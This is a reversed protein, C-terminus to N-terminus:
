RRTEGTRVVDPAILNLVRTVEAATAAWTGLSHRRQAAADRWRARLGPDGLWGRLAAALAAPDGAPLLAGPVAGDSGTGLAEGHGGVDTVIAPLGRALGEALAMGYSERRSPAVVLDSASRVEELAAPPLPGLLELRGALGLERVRARFDDTYSPLLDLAGVCRCHWDLDALEALEALAGLLDDYGKAPTLPGVCLLNAGGTSGTVLPGADVGPLAVHVREGPIGLREIAWGQAWASTTVVAAAAALVAPEAPGSEPMHLLVVVRLRRSEEVLVETTSAVLGDVLVLAADPLGALVSGLGAAGVPHERVGVGRAELAAALRRDYVNGGSPRRPDDVGDPLVLHLTM